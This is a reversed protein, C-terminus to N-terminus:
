FCIWVLICAIVVMGKYAMLSKEYRTAIRRFSKIRQFFREVFNRKKYIRKNYPAPIIRRAYSPIAAREGRGKLFQRIANTDYATDAIVYKSQKGLLLIKAFLNDNRQGCTIKIRLPRGRKDVVAHIKTAWGGRTKGIANLSKGQLAGM